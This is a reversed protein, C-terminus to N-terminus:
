IGLLVEELQLLVSTVQLFQVFYCPIMEVVTLKETQQETQWLLRLFPPDTKM